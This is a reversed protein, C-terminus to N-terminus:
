GRLFLLDLDSDSFGTLAQFQERVAARQASVREFEALEKAKDEAYVAENVLLEKEEDATLETREQYSPHHIGRSDVRSPYSIVKHNSM